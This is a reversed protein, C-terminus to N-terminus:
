AADGEINATKWNWRFVHAPHDHNKRRYIYLAGERPNSQKAVGEPLDYNVRPALIRIESANAYAFRAWEQSAGAIGLVLVIGSPHKQAESHAKVHWPLPNSFPPNCWARFLNSNWGGSVWQAYASLSDRYCDPEQDPGIYNQCKTNWAMACVDIQPDFEHEIVQWFEKPTALQQLEDKTPKRLTM